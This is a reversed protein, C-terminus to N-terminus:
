SGWWTDFAILDPLESNNERLSLLGRHVDGSSSGASSNATGTHVSTRASSPQELKPVAQPALRPPRRLRARLGGSAAELKGSPRWAFIPLGPVSSRMSHPRAEKRDADVRLRQWKEQWRAEFADAFASTGEIPMDKAKYKTSATVRRVIPEGDTNVTSIWARAGEQTQVCARRGAEKVIPVVEGRRLNGVKASNINSTARLVAGGAHVVVLRPAEEASAQKNDDPAVSSGRRLWHGPWWWFRKSTAPSGSAQFTKKTDTVYQFPWLRRVWSWM